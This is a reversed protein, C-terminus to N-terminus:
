MLTRRHRRRSIASAVQAFVFLLVAVLIGGWGVSIPGLLFLPITAALAVLASIVATFAVRGTVMAGAILLVSGSFTEGVALGLSKNQSISGVIFLVLSTPLGLTGVAVMVLGVVARAGTLQPGPDHQKPQRIKEPFVKHSNGKAVSIGDYGFAYALGFLVILFGVPIGAVVLGPADWGTSLCARLALAFVILGAIGLAMWAIQIIQTKTGCSVSVDVQHDCNRCKVQVVASGEVPRSFAVPYTTYSDTKRM